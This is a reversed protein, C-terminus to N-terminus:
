SSRLVTDLGAQYIAAAGLVTLEPNPSPRSGHGYITGESVKVYNRSPGGRGCFLLSIIVTLLEEQVPPSKPPCEM